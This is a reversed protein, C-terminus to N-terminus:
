IKGTWVAILLGINGLLSQRYVGIRHFAILWQLLGQKRAQRFRASHQRVRHQVQCGTPAPAAQGRLFESLQELAM